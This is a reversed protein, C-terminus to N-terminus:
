ELTIASETDKQFRGTHAEPLGYLYEQQRSLQRFKAQEEVEMPQHMSSGPNSGPGICELAEGGGGRRVSHQLYLLLCEWDHM